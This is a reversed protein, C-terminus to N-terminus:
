GMKGYIHSGVFISRERLHGIYGSLMSARFAIAVWAVRVVNPVQVARTTDCGPIVRRFWGPPTTGQFPQLPAHRLESACSRLPLRQEVDPSPHTTLKLHLTSARFTHGHIGRVLRAEPARLRIPEFTSCTTSSM